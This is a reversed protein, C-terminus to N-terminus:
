TSNAVIAGSPRVAMLAQRSLISLSQSRVGIQLLVQEAFAQVSARVGSRSFDQGQRPLGAHGLRRQAPTSAATAASVRVPHLARM